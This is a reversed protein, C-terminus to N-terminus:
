GFSIGGIVTGPEHIVLLKAKEAQIQENEAVSRDWADTARFVTEAFMDVRLQLFNPQAIGDFTNGQALNMHGGDTFFEFRDLGARRSPEIEATGTHIISCRAQYFDEASLFVTPETGDRRDVTFEPELWQKSWRLYRERSKGTGPDELSGCIEPMLLAMSLAAYWNQDAVARRGADTFRKM